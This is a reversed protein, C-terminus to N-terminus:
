VGDDEYGVTSSHLQSTNSWSTNLSKHVTSVVLHWGLLYPRWKELALIIALMEKEYTSLAKARKTFSKRLFALPHGKQM